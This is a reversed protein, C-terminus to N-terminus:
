ESSRPSPRKKSSPLPLWTEDSNVHGKTLWNIGPFCCPRRKGKALMDCANEIRRNRTEPQKASSVWRVWDRRAMPTIKAWLAQAPPAAALAERLDIPVRVEPEEGIRTIEVTVTDGAQAGAADQLAKNVRLGQSGNGSPELAARFPFGSMTGEVVTKGRSPVKASANKPLALLTWSRTKESAEPRPVKATFRITAKAEQLKAPKM